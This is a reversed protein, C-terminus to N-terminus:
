GDKIIAGLIRIQLSMMTDRLGQITGRNINSGHFAEKMEPAWRTLKGRCVHRTVSLLRTKDKDRRQGM